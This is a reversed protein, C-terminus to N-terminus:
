IAAKIIYNCALSPQMNNHAAGTGTHTDDGGVVAGATYAIGANNPIESATLAHTEAGFTGGFIDAQADTARNASNGGMNDKGLPVRGRMDPVNVAVGPGYARQLRLYLEPFRGADVSKGDCLLWKEPVDDDAGLYPLFVGVPIEGDGSPFGYGTVM